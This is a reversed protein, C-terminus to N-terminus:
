AFFFLKALFIFSNGGLRIAISLPLHGRLVEMLNIQGSWVTLVIVVGLGGGLIALWKALRSKFNM